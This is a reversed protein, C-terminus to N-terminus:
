RGPSRPARQQKWTQVTAWVKADIASPDVPFADSVVDLVNCFEPLAYGHFVVRGIKTAPTVALHAQLTACAIATPLREGLGGTGAGLAVMGVSVTGPLEELLRWLKESGRTIRASDPFPRAAPTDRYDMVAVHVVFRARPHTGAHTLLVDGPGMSGGGPVLAQDITGQFGPGCAGRIAASVGSGLAGITNSANVLVDVDADTVSGQRVEIQTTM